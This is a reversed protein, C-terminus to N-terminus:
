TCKFIQETVYFINLGERLKLGERFKGETNLTASMNRGRIEKIKRVGKKVIACCEIRKCETRTEDSKSSLYNFYAKMKEKWCNNRKMMGSKSVKKQM